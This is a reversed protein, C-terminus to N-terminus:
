SPGVKEASKVTNTSGTTSCFFGQFMIGRSVHKRKLASVLIEHQGEMRALMDQIEQVAAQHEQASGAM